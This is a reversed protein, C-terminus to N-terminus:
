VKLSNKCRNEWTIILEATPEKVKLQEFTKKATEIEEPATEVTEEAMEDTEEDFNEENSQVFEGIEFQLDAFNEALKQSSEVFGKLIFFMRKFLKSMCKQSNVLKNYRIQLNKM